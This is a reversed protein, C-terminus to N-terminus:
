IRCNCRTSATRRQQLVCNSWWGPVASSGPAQCAEQLRDGGDCRVDGGAEGGAGGACEAVTGGRVRCVARRRRRRRGPDCRLDGRLLRATGRGYSAAEPPGSGLHLLARAPGGGHVQVQPAGPHILTISNFITVGGPNFASCYRDRYRNHAQVEVRHLPRAGQAAALAGHSHDRLICGAAM